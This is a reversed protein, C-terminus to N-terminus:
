MKVSRAPPSTKVTPFNLEAYESTVELTMTSGHCWALNPHEHGIPFNFAVPYGFEGTHHRVINTISEGFPTNSDRIATMYGVVLGALKDLKGGRQLQTLMRDIKYKYEDIEEIVLIKNRTEPEIPTGMSDLIITLNGGIVEGTGSGPVNALDAGARVVLRGKFLIQHLSDISPGAMPDNFQSPMIAHISQYGEKYMLLHLATIDSFGIIWKPHKRFKTFDMRNLIRTAGYGGRACFVARIDRSDLARQIDNLREEDTGSLYNHGESFIYRGLTVKLRWAQLQKVAAELADKKLKGAPAVIAVRDGRQLLPPTIM